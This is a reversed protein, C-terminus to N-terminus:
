DRRENRDASLDVSCYIFCALCCMVRSLFSAFCLCARANCAILVNRLCYFHSGSVLSKHPDTGQGM